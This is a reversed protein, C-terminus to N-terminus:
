SVYSTSDNLRKNHPSRKASSLLFRHLIAEAIRHRLNLESASLTRRVFTQIIILREILPWGESRPRSFAHCSPLTPSIIRSFDSSMKSRSTTCKSCDIYRYLEGSVLKQFNKHMLASGCSM